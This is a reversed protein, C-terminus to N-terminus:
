AYEALWDHAWENADAFTDFLEKDLKRETTAQPLAAWTKTQKDFWIHVANAGASIVYRAPGLKQTRPYIGM